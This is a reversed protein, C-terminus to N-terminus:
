IIQLRASMKERDSWENDNLVVIFRKTHAKVNNLAEYVSEARSHPMARWPWLM